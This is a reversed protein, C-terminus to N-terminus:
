RFSLSSNDLGREKKKVTIIYFQLVSKNSQRGSDSRVTNRCKDASCCHCHDFRDFDSTNKLEIRAGGQVKSGMTGDHGHCVKIRTRFGCNNCFCFCYKYKYLISYCTRRMCALPDPDTDPDFNIRSVHKKKEIVVTSDKSLCSL